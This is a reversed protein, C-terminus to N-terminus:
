NKSLVRRITEGLDQMSVPKMMYASIGAEIAKDENILSSYGSCLIIPVDARIQSIKEALKAGTMQPMTMDTIILDFAEPNAEFLKLAENPDFKSEVRYGLRDLMESTMEVILEDDDVLLIREATGNYRSETESEKIIDASPQDVLPLLITFTTGYQPRSKVTILGNYNKVIGHVVSLGMGTGKDVPKTTFYPDFIKDIIEPPIGHGTDTVTIKVYEKSTPAEVHLETKINYNPSFRSLEEDFDAMDIGLPHTIKELFSSPVKQVDIEIVGGMEEMSQSANICLNIIIQHIQTQHGLVTANIDPEIIQRIEITSPITARLLQISDKITNVINIPELGTETKRSFSLLQRVIKSAKDGAIKIAEIKSYASSGEPIEYTALEANGLMINLINNFDHAIGGTLRGISEMKQAQRLENELMKRRTVDRFVGEIGAINGDEDKFFHANTSAWWVTGDKRRLEEEYNNVYGKQELMSLFKERDNSEQYFLDSIRSGMLEDVTYGTIEESSRSIFLIIGEINTRYLVDPMNEILIRYQEESKKLAERAKHHEELEKQLSLNVISLEKTREAVRKELLSKSRILRINLYCIFYTLIIALMVHLEVYIVDCVWIAEIHGIKTKDYLIDSKLTLEPMLCLFTFLRYGWGNTQGEASQFINGKTDFVVINKYKHSKCALSLYEESGEPNLNWLANSIVIAHEKIRFYAKNHEYREYFFIFLCFLIIFAATTGLIFKRYIANDQLNI